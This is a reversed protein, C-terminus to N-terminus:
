GHNGTKDDYEGSGDSLPVAMIISTGKGEGSELELTGGCLAARERMGIIGLGGGAEYGSDRFGRGDDVIQLVMRGDKKMFSIDVASAGSHRAINTLAEQTVRYVSIAAEPNFGGGEVPAIDLNLTFDDRANYENALAELALGLGTYDTIMPRLGKCIRRLEATSNLVMGTLEDYESPQIEAPNRKKLWDIELRLAALQHGLEDHLERSLRAQEEERTSIVKRSLARLQEESKRLMEEARKRETVDRCTYLVTGGKINVRKVNILLSHPRGSKDEIEREINPIEGKEDLEVISFVNRGILRNINGFEVVEAKGFGFIVHVNPCIYTFDGSDDTIFVADSINSLTIRHIEESERLAEEAKKRMIIRGLQDGVANILNREEKLFPGEDCEPKQRTYCIELFGVSVGHDILDARQSWETQEYGESRVEEGEFVIRAVAIEPYQWASSILNVTGRFINELSINKRDVLKSIAYLCNLEKIREGLEHSYERLKEEAIERKEAEHQLSQIKQQAGDLEKELQEVTKKPKETM